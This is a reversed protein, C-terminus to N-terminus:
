KGDNNEMKILQELVADDSVNSTVIINQFGLSEAYNKIRESVVLMPKDLLTKLGKQLLLSLNKVGEVSTCVVCEATIAQECQELTPRPLARKYVELYHVVAGRQLLTDALLERGGKGRVILIQKGVLEEFEPMLLLGESGISQSPQLDVHLGHLRMSAASGAGVSVLQTHKAFPEKIANVFNTVANRSVFIIMDQEALVFQPWTQVDTSVIDIVPFAMAEGGTTEIMDCLNKAQQEPRTVLVKLGNLPTNAVM